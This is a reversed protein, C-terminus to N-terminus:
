PEILFYVYNNHLGEITPFTTSARLLHQQHAQSLDELRIGCESYMKVRDIVECHRNFWMIVAEDLPPKTVFVNKWSATAYGFIPDQLTQVSLEISNWDGDRGHLDLMYKWFPEALSCRGLQFMLPNWEHSTVGGRYNVSVSTLEYVASRFHIKDQIRHSNVILSQWARDVRQWCFINMNDAYELILELLEPIGFVRKASTM